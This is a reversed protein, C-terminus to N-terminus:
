NQQVNLTIFVDTTAAFTPGGRAILAGFLSTTTPAVPIEVAKYIVNNDVNTFLTTGAVGDFRVVAVIKNLDADAVDLPSNETFTTGTPDSDFLILDYVSNAASNAAQDGILISKITVGCGALRTVNTFTLKGGVLDAAAYAAAQVTLALKVSPQYQGVAQTGLGPSRQIDFTAGNYLAHFVGPIAGGNSADAWGRGTMWRSYINGTNDRVLIAQAPVGAGSTGSAGDSTRQVQYNAGDFCLLGIAGIGAGSTNSAQGVTTWRDWANSGRHLRTPGQVWPMSTSYSLNDSTISGGLWQNLFGTDQNGWGGLVPRISAYASGNATTGEVRMTPPSGSPTTVQLNGSSDTLLRRVLNSGDAGAVVVPYGATADEGHDAFGQILSRSLQSLSM